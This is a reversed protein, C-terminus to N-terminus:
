FNTFSGFLFLYDMGTPYASNLNSIASKTENHWIDGSRSQVENNLGNILIIAIGVLLAFSIAFRMYEPIDIWNGKKNNFLKM